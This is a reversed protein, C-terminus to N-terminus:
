MVAFMCCVGVCCPYLACYAVTVSSYISFLVTSFLNLWISVGECVIVTVSSKLLAKSVIFMCVSILFGNCVLETVIIIEDCVVDLSAVGVYCIYVVFGYTLKFSDNRM